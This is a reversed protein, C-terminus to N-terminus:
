FYWGLVRDVAEAISHLPAQSRRMEISVFGAYGNAALVHGIRAHDVVPASFDALFPESVHIHALIDICEAVAKVPEEGAIHLCATDLHLRFGPHSVARVLEAGEVWRTVFNCGYQEPNPEICVCSDFEACIEAVSHFFDIAIRYADRPRIDGRDRTGPSGLVLRRAGLQGALAAVSELHELALVRDSGSRFLKIDPRAYFLSQLAPIMFGKSEMGARFSRASSVTAGNWQPWLRTPAIELHCVGRAQLLELVDPEEAASWAINSVALQKV